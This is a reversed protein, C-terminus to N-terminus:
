SAMEGNMSKALVSDFLEQLKARRLLLQVKYQQVADLKAVIQHQTELSPAPIDLNKLITSNLGKMIAGKARHRIQTLVFPNDRLSLNLFEPSMIKRNPTIKILHSSIIARGLTEPIICTRGITGMMTIVIDYPKVTYVDLEQYKKESIYKEKSWDFENNVVNEIFLVRAYGEESLEAIKLASGFPGIKVENVLSSLKKINWKGGTTDLERRLLSQFLENAKEILRSNLKQVEQIADLREVIKKQIELPPISVSIHEIFTKNLHPIAAGRAALRIKTQYFTFLLYLFHSNLPGRSIVKVITSGVFGKLGIGVTGANAGDWALLVDDPACRIGETGDTYTSFRGSRLDDIGIYPEGVGTISMKRGKEFVILDGLKKTPWNMKVVSGNERM